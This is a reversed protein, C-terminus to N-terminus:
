KKHGVFVRSRGQQQEGRKSRRLCLIHGSNCVFYNTGVSLGFQHLERGLAFRGQAAHAAVLHQTLLQGEGVGVLHHLAAGFGVLEAEHVLAKRLVVLADANLVGIVQHVGLAAGHLRNVAVKLFDRVQVDRRQHALVGGQAASQASDTGFFVHPLGALGVGFGVLGGALEHNHAVM